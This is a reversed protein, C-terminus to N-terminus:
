RVANTLIIPGTRRTEPSAAIVKGCRVMVLLGRYPVTMSTSVGVCMALVSCNALPAIPVIM